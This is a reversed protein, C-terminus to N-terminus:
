NYHLQGTSGIIDQLKGFRMAMMDLLSLEHLPLTSLHEASLPMFHASQELAGKLRVAHIDAIKLYESLVINKKM